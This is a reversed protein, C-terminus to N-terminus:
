AKPLTAAAQHHNASQYTAQREKVEQHTIQKQYKISIHGLIRYEVATTKPKGPQSWFHPSDIPAANSNQYVNIHYLLSYRQDFGINQILNVDLLIGSGKCLDRVVGEVPCYEIVRSM